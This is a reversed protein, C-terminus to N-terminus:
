SIPSSVQRALSTTTKEMKFSVHWGELLLIRDWCRIAEEGKTEKRGEVSYDRIGRLAVSQKRQKEWKGIPRERKREWNSDNKRKKRRKRWRLCTVNRIRNIGNNSFPLALFANSIQGVNDKDRTEIECPNEFFISSRPSLLPFIEFGNRKFKSNHLSHFLHYRNM